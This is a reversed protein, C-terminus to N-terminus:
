NMILTLGEEKCSELFKDAEKLSTRITLCKTGLFFVLQVGDGLQSLSAQGFHDATEDKIKVSSCEFTINRGTTTTNAM